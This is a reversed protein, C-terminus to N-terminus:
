PRIAASGCSYPSTDAFIRKSSADYAAIEAGGLGSGSFYRSVLSLESGNVPPTNAGVSQTSLALTGLALTSVVAFTFFKNKMADCVLHPLNRVVSM